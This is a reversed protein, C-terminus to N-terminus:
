IDNIAKAISYSVFPSVANGFQKYAQTDSVKIKFTEKTLQDFGMLRSCERPTLRRPNSGRGRNVLIESGDKYYRASLTRTKQSVGPTILGYGFGNGKREHKEKHKQLYLWLKDSLIYKPNVKSLVGATYPEEAKESGNETHIIDCLDINKTHKYNKIKDFSFSVNDRFGIIFVRERHQPLWNKVDVIDFHINYGLDLLSEKIIRFTNGKDHSRLNKVNELIFIPPKKAKLIRLIDFFLTGQTEDLFGHNRQMSNKKSVGAISFPQCPFGALLIDHNPIDNEPMKTIDSNLLHDTSFNAAYTQSAFKDRESTFVCKYDLLDFGLRLGGIGSFLDIFRM